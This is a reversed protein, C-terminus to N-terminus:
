HFTLSILLIYKKIELSIEHCEFYLYEIYKIHYYKKIILDILEFNSGRSYNYNYLSLLPTKICIQFM